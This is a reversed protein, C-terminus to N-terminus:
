LQPVVDEFLGSRREGSDAQWTVVDASDVTLIARAKRRNAEHSIGQQSRGRVDLVTRYGRERLKSAALLALKFQDDLAVVVVLPVTDPVAIEAAAAVREVGFAFGAVPVSSGSGLAGLLDDYRGGGCLQSGDGAAIEFIMGTYYRLGRNMGLDVTIRDAAVGQSLLLEVTMELENLPASRLGESALLERGAAIAVEPRGRATGLKGVLETARQIHPVTVGGRLKRVLRAVIAEPPRSSNHIPLGVARIMTLLLSQLQDDPLSKLAGLDFADLDNSLHMEDRVDAVGGRRVRELDWILQSVTRDALGLGNLLSRAVGVHGITLSWEAVGSRQLAALALLLIEADGRPGMGGILEVGVATFQRYTGRQPREYRFVPGAYRLRVPLPESRLSRLYARLVSATWEPRLALARGHHMFEYLKGVLDEGAKKLYLDRRELVPVDIPQYGWGHLVDNLQQQVAGLKLQESPLVDRTGRVPQWPSSDIMSCITAYERVQGEWSFPVM